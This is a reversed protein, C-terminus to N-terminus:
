ESAPALTRDSENGSGRGSSSASRESARSSFSLPRTSALSKRTVRPTPAVEDLRMRHSSTDSGYDSESSSHRSNQRQVKTSRSSRLAESRQRQHTPREPRAPIRKTSHRLKTDNTDQKSIPHHADEEESYDSGSGDDDVSKEIRVEESKLENRLRSAPTRGERANSPTSVPRQKRQRQKAGPSAAQPINRPLSDTLHSFPLGAPRGQHDVELTWEDAQSAEYNVVRSYQEEHDLFGYGDREVDLKTMHKMPQTQITAYHARTTRRLHGKFTQSQPLGLEPSYVAEITRECVQENFKQAHIEGPRHKRAPKEGVIMPSIFQGVETSAAIRM